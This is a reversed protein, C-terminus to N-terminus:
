VGRKDGFLEIHLRPCYRFGLRKCEEQVWLGRARQEERTKGQPMLLVREKKAEPLEQLCTLLEEIDSAGDIVFKLQYEYAGMFKQIVEPRWRRDEHQKAFRGGERQHPTSNSLKPSLSALDCEVPAFQIAATEITIHYGERRFAACLLEIEPAIMPEGGTVVVHKAGFANVAAVIQEITM